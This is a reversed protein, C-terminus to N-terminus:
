VCAVACSCARLVCLYIVRCNNSNCVRVFVWRRFLHSCVTFKYIVELGYNSVMKHFLQAAFPADSTEYLLYADYQIPPEGKRAREVDRHTLLNLDDDIPIDVNENTNVKTQSTVNRNQMQKSVM